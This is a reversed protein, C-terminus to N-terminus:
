ATDKPGAQVYIKGLKTLVKDTVAVSLQVDPEEITIVCDGAAPVTITEVVTTVNVATSALPLEVVHTKSTAGLSVSAGVNVPQGPLKVTL